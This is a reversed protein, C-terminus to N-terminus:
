TVGKVEGWVQFPHGHEEIKSVQGLMCRSGEVGCISSVSDAALPLEDVGVHM